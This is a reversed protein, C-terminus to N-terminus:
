QIKLVEELIRMSEGLTKANFEEDMKEGQNITREIDEICNRVQTRLDDQLTEYRGNPLFKSFEKQM